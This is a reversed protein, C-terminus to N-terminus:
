SAGAKGSAVKVQEGEQLFAGATTVVRDSPELGGAILVGDNGTGGIRVARREVKDHRNVIMVFNGRDDNLVATQPLVARQANSVTVEARAFAGPRLNADAPLAVRVMGLRTQPDIVTALLRVQGDFTQDFGTLSVTASQGVKLMPLDQEAVEGRLEVEGGASLRFLPTGGPTATQGVEVSRTLIIGAAPARVETRDFRARMEALQAAAVKVKAAATLAASRRRQTEEASLAGSAGVSDARKFEAQALDAEAKAQELGAELSGVQPQLVSVNLQALLQGKKVHDGAEVYVASVRGGDGEVGIPMDYRASITGTISVLTPKASMGVMAVSVLPMPPQEAAQSHDIGIRKLRWGLLAVVIIVVAILFWRVRSLTLWSNQPNLIPEMSASM